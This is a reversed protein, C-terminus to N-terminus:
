WSRPRAACTTRCNVAQVQRFLQPAFAPGAAGHLDADCVAHDADLFVGARGGGDAARGRGCPRAGADACVLGGMSHGVVPVPGARLARIYAALADAMPKMFNMPDRFASPALGAFGRMHITHMRVGPLKEAAEEWCEPSAALGHLFGCGGRWGDVVTFQEGEWLPLDRKLWRSLSGLQMALPTEPDDASQTLLHLLGTGGRCAKQNVFGPNAAPRRFGSRAASATRTSIPRGRGFFRKESHRKVAETRPTVLRVPFTKPAYM